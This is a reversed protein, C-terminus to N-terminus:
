LAGARTDSSRVATPRFRLGRMARSEIREFTQRPLGALLIAAAVTVLTRRPEKWLISADSELAKGVLALAKEGDRMRVARRALYRLQYARALGEFEAVFERAYLRAKDIARKWSEYQADLNASLGGSNVRYLTLPLGIGSFRWSTQLAIRLWCEIDESQRFSEDFFCEEVVGARPSPFAIENLTARRIVPASGNGIPNRTLIDMPEVGALKPRQVLGIPRGAEDIFASQSYSVGVDPNADLHAVHRALKDEAWLDDSDIFAILEGSACRIGTNRAGALGRNAQRIVRIRPDSFGRVISLSSDTSGDDVILLEFDTFSQDLVSRIAQAVFPEVNFVPMVVSVIPSIVSM